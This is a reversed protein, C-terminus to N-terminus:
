KESKKLIDFAEVLLDTARLDGLVKNDDDLVPLIVEGNIMMKNMASELTDRPRVGWTAAEGRALDSAKKAFTLRLVEGTSAAGGGTRGYLYLHVWKLLDVRRLMGVFRDKKDVLFVARVSKDHAFKEAVERLSTTKPLCLSASETLQYVEDVLILRM